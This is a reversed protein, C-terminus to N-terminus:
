LKWLKKNKLEIKKYKKVDACKKKAKNVVIIATVKLRYNISHSTM